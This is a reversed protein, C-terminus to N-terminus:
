ASDAAIGVGRDALESATVVSMFTDTEARGLRVKELDLREREAHVFVSTDILLAM